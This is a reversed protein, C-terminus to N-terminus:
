STGAAGSMALAAVLHSYDVAKGQVSIHRIVSSNEERILYFVSDVSLEEVEGEIDSLVQGEFVGFKFCLLLSPRPSGPTVLPIKNSMDFKLSEIGVDEKVLQRGRMRVAVRMQSGKFDNAEQYVRPLQCQELAIMMLRWILDFLPGSRGFVQINATIVYRYRKTQLEDEEEPYEITSEIQTGLPGVRLNNSDIVKNIKILEFLKQALSMEEDTPAGVRGRSIELIPYITGSADNDLHGGDERIGLALTTIIRTHSGYRLISGGISEGSPELVDVSINTFETPTKLNPRVGLELHRSLALRPQVRGLVPLPIPTQKLEM